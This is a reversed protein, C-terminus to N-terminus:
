STSVHHKGWHFFKSKASQRDFFLSNGTTDFKIRDSIVFLMTNLEMKLKSFFLYIFSYHYLSLKNKNDLISISM